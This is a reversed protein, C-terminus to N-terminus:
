KSTLGYEQALKEYFEASQSAPWEDAVWQPTPTGAKRSAYLLYFRARADEPDILTMEDALRVAETYRGDNMMAHFDTDMSSLPSEAQVQCCMVFLLATLSTKKM